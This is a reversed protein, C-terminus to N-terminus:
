GSVCQSGAGTAVRLERAVGLYNQHQNPARNRYGIRYGVRLFVQSWISANRICPFRFDPASNLQRRIQLYRTAPEFGATPESESYSVPRRFPSGSARYWRFYWWNALSGGSFPVSFSRERIRTRGRSATQTGVASVYVAPRDRFAGFGTFAPGCSAARTSFDRVSLMAELDTRCM